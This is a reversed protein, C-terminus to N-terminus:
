TQEAIAFQLLIAKSVCQYVLRKYGPPINEPRDVFELARILIGAGYKLTNTVWGFHTEVDTHAARGAPSTVLGELIAEPALRPGHEQDSSTTAQSPKKYSESNEEPYLFSQFQNRFNQFARGSILFQRLKQIEVEIILNDTDLDEEMQGDAEDGEGGTDLLEPIPEPLYGALYRNFHHLKARKTESSDQPLILRPSTVDYTEVILRSVHRAQQRLFHAADRQVKIEAEQLLDNSYQKLLRTLNRSFREVTLLTAATSFLNRLQVDNQLMAAFQEAGNRTFDSTEESATSGMTLGPLSVISGGETLDTENRAHRFGIEVSDVESQVPDVKDKKDKVLDLDVDVTDSSKAGKDVLGIRSEHSSAPTARNLFYEDETNPRTLKPAKADQSPVVSNM